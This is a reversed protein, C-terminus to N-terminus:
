VSVSFKYTSTAFPTSPSLIINSFSAQSRMTKFRAHVENSVLVPRGTQDGRGPIFQLCGTRIAEKDDDDLDEYVIDKILKNMGFLELKLEFYQVLRQAANSADFNEVILFTSRFERDKVRWPALFLAREYAQKTQLRTIERELQELCHDVFQSNEEQRTQPIGHIDELVRERAQVSLQSLETALLTSAQEHLSKREVNVPAGKAGKAAKKRPLSINLFCDGKQEAARDIDSDGTESPSSSRKMLDLGVM